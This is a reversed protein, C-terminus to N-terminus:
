LSASLIKLIAHLQFKDEAVHKTRIWLPLQFSDQAEAAINQSASTVDWLNIIVCGKPSSSILCLQRIVISLWALPNNVIQSESLTLRVTTSTLPYSPLLWENSGMFASQMPM